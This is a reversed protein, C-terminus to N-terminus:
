GTALEEVLDADPALELRAWVHKADDRVYWGLQSALRAVLLLGYGGHGLAREPYPNPLRDTAADTVDLLWADGDTLLHVEIPPQGHRLANTVLESCSLAVRNRLEVLGGHAPPEGPSGVLGLHGRPESAESTLCNVVDHRVRGIGAADGIGWTRVLRLPREGAAGEPPVCPSLTAAV